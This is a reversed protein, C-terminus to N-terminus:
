REHNRHTLFEPAAQSPLEIEPDSLAKLRQSTSCDNFPKVLVASVIELTARENVQCAPAPQQLHSWNNEEYAEEYPQRHTRVTPQGWFSLDLLGLCFSWHRKHGLSPLWRHDGGSVKIPWQPRGTNSSVVCFISELPFSWLLSDQLGSGCYCIGTRQKFLKQKSIWSAGEISYISYEPRVLSHASIETLNLM